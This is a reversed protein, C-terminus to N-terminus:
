PATRDARLVSGIEFCCRLIFEDFHPNVQFVNFNRKEGEGSCIEYDGIVRDTRIKPLIEPMASM